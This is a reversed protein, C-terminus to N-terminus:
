EGEAWRVLIHEWFIALVFVAGIATWKAAKRM